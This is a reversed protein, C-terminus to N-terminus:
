TRQSTREVIAQVRTVQDPPTLMLLLDGAKLRTSGTPVLYEEGRGLLVVLTGEPFSINVLQKGALASGPAILLELLESHLGESYAIEIPRPPRDDVPEDVGLLRAVFPLSTGQVLVSTLVIFFVINFILDAREVGALLPFTALIIPVAGRLGVWAVFAKDALSFRTWAMGLFVSVPRSFLMLFAAILLGEGVIPLLESPFVLLGLTMFMLIQMLWALGAHFRRLSAKHVFQRNGLLLGALYVALFGSGGVLTTVGYLLLVLALMLVPYLGEYQLRLRNILDASLRGAIFGAGAGIVAQQVFLRVLSLVTADPTNILAIFGVTLFIAMPDNSGSELELLARLDGKLGLGKSRLVAFVAAADTSSVIAGLLMGEKLSIDLLAHAFVGVLLATILVGATALVLAPGLVPRIDEWRTELGGSFLILALALVGLLQAAWPDDFYIGGPGESGALMGVVLFLVLAPVGFYASIKSALISALVLAAGVALIAEISM